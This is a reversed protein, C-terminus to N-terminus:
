LIEISRFFRLRGSSYRNMTHAIASFVFLRGDTFVARIYFTASSDDLRYELDVAPIGNHTTSEASILRGKIAKELNALVGEEIQQDTLSGQKLKRSSMVMASFGSYGEQYQYQVTSITGFQPHNSRATTRKPPQPFMVTFGEEASGAAYWDDQIFFVYVGYAVAVILALKILKGM